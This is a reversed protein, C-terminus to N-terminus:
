TSPIKRHLRDLSDPPDVNAQDETANRTLGHSADFAEIGQFRALADFPQGAANPDTGGSNVSKVSGGPEPQLLHLLGLGGILTSIARQPSIGYNV